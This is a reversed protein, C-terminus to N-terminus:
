ILPSSFHLFLSVFRHHVVCSLFLSHSSCHLPPLPRNPSVCSSLILSLSTSTQPHHHRDGATYWTCFIKWLWDTGPSIWPDLHPPCSHNGPHSGRFIRRWMIGQCWTFLMIYLFERSGYWFLDPLHNQNFNQLVIVAIHSKIVRVPTELTSQCMVYVDSSSCFHIIHYEPSSTRERSTSADAFTWKERDWTEKVGTQRMDCTKHPVILLWKLYRWDTVQKNMPSMIRSSCMVDEWKQNKTLILPIFTLENQELMLENEDRSTHQNIIM